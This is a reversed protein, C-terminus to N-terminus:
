GFLEQFLAREFSLIENTGLEFTEVKITVKKKKLFGVLEKLEDSPWWLDVNKQPNTKALKEDADTHLAKLSEKATSQLKELLNDSELVAVIYSGSANKLKVNAGARMVEKDAYATTMPLGQPVRTLYMLFEALAGTFVSKTLRMGKALKGFKMWDDDTMTAFETTAHLQDRLISATQSDLKALEAEDLLQNLLDLTDTSENKGWPARLQGPKAPQGHTAPGYSGGEFPREPEKLPSGGARVEAPSAGAMKGRVDRTPMSGGGVGPLFMSELAKTKSLWVPIAKAFIIKKGDQKKSIHVYPALEKLDEPTLGLEDVFAFDSKTKKFGFDLKALIAKFQEVREPTLGAKAKPSDTAQKKQWDPLPLGKKGAAEVLVSMEQMLQSADMSTM